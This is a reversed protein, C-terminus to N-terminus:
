GKRSRSRCRKCQPQSRYLMDNIKRLGIQSAPLTEGCSTCQMTCRYLVIRRGTAPDVYRATMDEEEESAADDGSGDDYVHELLDLVAEIRRRVPMGEADGHRWVYREGDKYVRGVKELGLKVDWIGREVALVSVVFQVEKEM